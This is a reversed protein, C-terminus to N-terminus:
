AGQDTESAAASAPQNAALQRTVAHLADAALRAATRYFETRAVNEVQTFVDFAFATLHERAFRRAETEALGEALGETRGGESLLHALFALETAVHDAPRAETAPPEFGFRAYAEEVQATTPGCLTRDDTRYVSEYPSAGSMGVMYFLFAYDQRLEDLLADDERELIQALHPAAQPAVTSFPPERLLDTGTRLAALSGEDPAADFLLASFACLVRCADRREGRM